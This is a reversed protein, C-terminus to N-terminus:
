AGSSTETVPLVDGTQVGAAGMTSSLPISAGTRQLQLAYAKAASPAEIFGARALSDIAQRGTTSVGVEAKFERSDRPHLFSLTLKDNTTSATTM